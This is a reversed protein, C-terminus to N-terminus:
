DCRGLFETRPNDANRACIPQPERLSRIVGQHVQVAHHNGAPVGRLDHDLVKSGACVHYPEAAADLFDLQPLAHEVTFIEGDDLLNRYEAQEGDRESKNVPLGIRMPFQFIGMKRKFDGIKFNKL